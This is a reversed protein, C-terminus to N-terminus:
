RIRSVKPFMGGEVCVFEPSLSRTVVVAAPMVDPWSRPGQRRTVLSHVRDADNAPNPM